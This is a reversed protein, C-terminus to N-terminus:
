NMAEEIERIRRQSSRILTNESAPDLCFGISIWRPPHRRRRVELTPQTILRWRAALAAELAQEDLTKSPDLTRATLRHHNQAQWVSYSHLRVLEHRKQQILPDSGVDYNLNSAHVGAQNPLLISLIRTGLQEREATIQEVEGRLIANETQLLSARYLLEAVSQASWPGSPPPQRELALSLAEQLLQEREAGRRQEAEHQARLSETVASLERFRQQCHRLRTELDQFPRLGDTDPDPPLPPRPPRRRRIRPGRPLPPRRRRQRLAEIQRRLLSNHDQLTVIQEAQALQQRQLDQNSQEAREARQQHQAALRLLSPNQHFRPQPQRPSRPLEEEDAYARMRWARMRCTSNHHRMHSRGARPLMRGCGECRGVAM